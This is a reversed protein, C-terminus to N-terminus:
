YSSSFLSSNIHGVAIAVCTTSNNQKTDITEFSGIYGKKVLVPITSAYLRDARRLKNISEHSDPRSTTKIRKKAEEPNIQLWFLLNTFQPDSVSKIIPILLPMHFRFYIQFIVEPDVFPDRDRVILQAGKKKLDEEIMGILRMHAILSQMVLIYSERGQGKKYLDAIQSAREPRLIESINRWLYLSAEDISGVLGTPCIDSIAYAVGRATSSKGSGDIGTFSTFKFESEVM